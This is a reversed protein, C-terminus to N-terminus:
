QADTRFPYAPLGEKSYLSCPPYDAWCYRVAVPASVEASSVLVEAGIIAAKAPMWKRDAGTIEFGTLEAPVPLPQAGPMPPPVGIVLGSGTSKFTVRIKGGEVKMSDYMPGSAVCSQGYAIQKALLALREGVPIKNKPHIDKEDGVDLATAMGTNPLTLAKSQGERLLAWKGHSPDSPQVGYGAIQVFLFPFDGQGWKERWDRIMTPFLVGYEAGNNANSEGQYWVVGKIAFPILPHIMGNFLSTTTGVNGPNAPRPFALQPKPPEPQGAERAKKAAVDWARMQAGLPEFAEKGWKQMAHAYDAWKVPFKAKQEPKLNQLGQLYNALAPEKELGSLSTWAQAPTGGWYSGIMGVPKGTFQHVNKAFLYGVASFGGWSGAKITKQWHGTLTDLGIEPPVFETEDLPTLSASKTVCFVRIEPDIVEEKNVNFIGFEMNSQGSCIWVDGVLVDEFQLTNKGAVTLTLPTSGSANPPLNVRWKGDAGTIAKEASKGLTVTVTEGPEAWGWIPLKSDQQLVMHDGFLTSMRVEAHVSAAFGLSLIASLWLTPSLPAFRM